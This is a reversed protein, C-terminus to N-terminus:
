IKTCNGLFMEVGRFPGDVSTTVYNFVKYRLSLQFIEHSISPNNICIYTTWAPTEPDHVSCSQRGYFDVEFLRYGKSPNFIFNPLDDENYTDLPMTGSYLNTQQHHSTICVWDEDPLEQALALIPTLLLLSLLTRKM